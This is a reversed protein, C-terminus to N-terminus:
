DSPPRRLRYWIQYAGFFLALGSGIACLIGTQWADPPFNPICRLAVLIAAVAFLSSAVCAALSRYWGALLGWAMLMAGWSGLLWAYVLGWDSGDIWLLIALAVAAGGVGVLLAPM